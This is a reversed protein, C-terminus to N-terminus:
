GIGSPGCTQSAHLPVALTLVVTVAVTALWVAYLVAPRARRRSIVWAIWAASSGAAPAILLCLAVVNGLIPDLPANGTCYDSDNTLATDLVVLFIGLASATWALAALVRYPVRPWSRLAGALAACMLLLPVATLRFPVAMAQTVGGLGVRYQSVQPDDAWYFGKFAACVSTVVLLTALAHAHPRARPADPFCAPWLIDRFRGNTGRGVATRCDEATVLRM